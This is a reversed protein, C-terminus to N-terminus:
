ELYTDLLKQDCIMKQAFEFISEPKLNPMGFNEYSDTLKKFVPSRKSNSETLNLIILEHRLVDWHSIAGREGDVHWVSYAPHMRDPLGSGAIYSSFVPNMTGLIGIYLFIWTEM